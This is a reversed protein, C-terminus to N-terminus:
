PLLSPFDMRTPAPTPTLLGYDATPRWPPGPLQQSPEPEPSVGMEPTEFAGLPLATGKLFPTHQNSDTVLSLWAWHLSWGLAQFREM